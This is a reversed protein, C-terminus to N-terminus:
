YAIIVNYHLGPMKRMTRDLRGQGIRGRDVTQLIWLFNVQLIYKYTVEAEPRGFVGNTRQKFLVSGNLTDANDRVTIRAPSLSESEDLHGAIGFRLTGDAGQVSLFKVAPIQGDIFRARFFIAAAKAASAAVAATAAASALLAPLWITPPPAWVGEGCCDHCFNVLIDQHGGVAGTADGLRVAWNTKLLRPLFHASVELREIRLQTLAIRGLDVFVARLSIELRVGRKLSDGAVDQDPSRVSGLHPTKSRLLLRLDTEQDFAVSLHLCAREGQLRSWRNDFARMKPLPESSPIRVRARWRDIGREPRDTPLRRPLGASQHARPLVPIRCQM